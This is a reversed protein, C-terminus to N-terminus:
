KKDTYTRNFFSSYVLAFFAKNFNVQIQQVCPWVWVRGGPIMAPSGYGFGSVIMAENPGCTEFGM